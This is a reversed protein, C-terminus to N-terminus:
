TISRRSALNRILRRAGSVTATVFFLGMFVAGVGFVIRGTRASSQASTSLGPISLSASFHRQGPGFAIWAFVAFMLGVISTGLLFQALRAAFPADAALDGDAAPAGWLAYGNIIALGALMFMAGAAVVVWRAVDPAPRVDVVGFGGLLPVIGCVICFMGVLVAGRPTIQDPRSSRPKVAKLM